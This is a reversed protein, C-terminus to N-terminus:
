ILYAKIKSEIKIRCVPCTELQNSCSFCCALHGCPAFLHTSESGLCVVCMKKEITEAPVERFRAIIKQDQEKLSAHKFITEDIFSQEIHTSVFECDRNALIHREWPIDDIKWMSCIIGCNFCFVKDINNSYFFGCESMEYPSQFIQIPWDKFSEM